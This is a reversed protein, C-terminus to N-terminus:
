VGSGLKEVVLRGGLGVPRGVVETLTKSRRTPDGSVQPRGM